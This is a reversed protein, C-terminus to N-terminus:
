PRHQTAREGEEDPRAGRNDPSPRFRLERVICGWHWGLNGGRRWAAGLHLLIRGLKTDSWRLHRRTRSDLRGSLSETNMDPRPAHNHGRFCVPCCDAAEHM